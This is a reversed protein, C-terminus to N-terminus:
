NFHLKINKNDRKNLLIFKSLRKKRKNSKKMLNHNKFSYKRKIKKNFLIKFRKKSSSKTKLKKKKM